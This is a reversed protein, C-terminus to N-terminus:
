GPNGWGIRSRLRTGSANVPYTRSETRVHGVYDSEDTVLDGSRVYETRISPELSTQRVHGVGSGSM